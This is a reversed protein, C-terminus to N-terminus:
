QLVKKSHFCLVSHPKLFMFYLDKHSILTCLGDVFNLEPLHKLFICNVLVMECM